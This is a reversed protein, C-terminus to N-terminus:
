ARRFASVFRKVGFLDASISIDDFAISDPQAEEADDGLLGAPLGVAEAQRLLPGRLMTAIEDAQDAGAAPRVLEATTLRSCRIPLQAVVDISATERQQTDLDKWGQKGPQRVSRRDM